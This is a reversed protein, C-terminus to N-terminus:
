KVNNKYVQRVVRLHLNKLNVCITKWSPFFIAISWHYPAVNTNWLAFCIAVTIIQDDSVNLAM